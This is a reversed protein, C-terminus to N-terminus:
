AGVSCANAVHCLMARYSWQDRSRGAYAVAGDATELVAIVENSAPAAMLRDLLEAHRPAVAMWDQRLRNHAVATRSTPALVVLRMAAPRLPRAAPERLGSGVVLVDLARAGDERPKQRPGPDQKGTGAAHGFKSLEIALFEDFSLSRPGIMGWRLLDGRTTIQWMGPDAPRLYRLNVGPTAAARAPVKIAHALYDLMLSYFRDLASQLWDFVFPVSFRFVLNVFSLASVIFAAVTVPIVRL